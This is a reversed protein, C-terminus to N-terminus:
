CTKYFSETEVKIDGYVRAISAFCQIGVTQNIFYYEYYSFLGSLGTM